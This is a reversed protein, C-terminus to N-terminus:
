GGAEPATPESPGAEPKAAAVDEMLELQMRQIELLREWQRTQLQDLKSHLHRIELEAKLNVRYDNEARARDRAEQRNQSMMIVPAQIAALCSLALNLLIFPYPDFPRHLLGANIAIWLWIIGAFILVFRWSGGFSAVRDAVREGLTLRREFEVDVNRSLLEHERLSRVVEAELATLEGREGAIVREVYDARLGRICRTCVPMDPTWGPRRQRALEVLPGHFVQGSLLERPPRPQGCLSCERATGPLAEM